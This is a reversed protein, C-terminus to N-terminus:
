PLRWVDSGGHKVHLALTGKGAFKRDERQKSGTKSTAKVSVETIEALLHIEDFGPNLAAATLAATLDAHSCGAGGVTFTSAAAPRALTAGLLALFLSPLSARRAARRFAALGPLHQVQVMM